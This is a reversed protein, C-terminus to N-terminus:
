TKAARYFKIISEVLGPFRESLEELRLRNIADVGVKRAGHTRLPVHTQQPKHAVVLRRPREFPM